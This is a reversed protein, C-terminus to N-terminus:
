GIKDIVARRRKLTSIEAHVLFMIFVISVSKMGTTLNPRPLSVGHLVGFQFCNKINFKNGIRRIKGSAGRIYPLCIVTSQQQEESTKTRQLQELIKGLHKKPYGNRHNERIHTLKADLSEADNCIHM